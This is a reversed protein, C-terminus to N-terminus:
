RRPEVAQEAVTRVYPAMGQLSIRPSFGQHALLYDNATTPLPVINPKPEPQMQAVAAPTPAPITHPQPALAMWGVLAVGALSAAASLAFWTRSQARSQERLARPAFVTPEAALRGALRAAFDASLLRNERLADSVLQYTRWTRVAERDSGLAQLVEAASKDDLEGDMLASLKEKM